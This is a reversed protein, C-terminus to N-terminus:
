WNGPVPGAGGGRKNLWLKIIFRPPSCLCVCVCEYVCQPFFIMLHFQVSHASNRKTSEFPASAKRSMMARKKKGWKNNILSLLSPISPYLLGLTGTHRLTSTHLDDRWNRASVQRKWIAPRLHGRSGIWDNSFGESGRLVGWFGEFDRLIRWFGESDRLIGWFGESDRLIGWFGDQIITKLDHAVKFFTRWQILAAIWWRRLLFRLSKRSSPLMESCRPADLLMWSCGPADLLTWSYKLADLLIESCRLADSLM